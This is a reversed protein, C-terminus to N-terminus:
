AISSKDRYIIKKNENKGETEKKRKKIIKKRTRKVFKIKTIINKGSLYVQKLSAM